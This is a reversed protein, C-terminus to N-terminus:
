PKTLLPLLVSSKQECIDQVDNKLKEINLSPFFCKFVSKIISSIKAPPVQDALLTYYLKQIGASYQKGGTKTEIIFNADSDITISIADTVTSLEKQVSAFTKSLEINEAKIAAIEEELSLTDAIAHKSFEELECTKKQLM